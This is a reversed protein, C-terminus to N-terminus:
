RMFLNLAVVVCNLFTMRAHFPQSAAMMVSRMEDRMKIEKERDSSSSDRVARATSRVLNRVQAEVPKQLRKRSVLTGAVGAVTAPRNAIRLV